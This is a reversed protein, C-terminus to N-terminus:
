RSVDSHYAWMQETIQAPKEKLPQIVYVISKYAKLLLATKLPASLIKYRMLILYFVFLYVASKFFRNFDHVSM